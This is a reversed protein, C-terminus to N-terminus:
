ASAWTRLTPPRGGGAPLSASRWRRRCHPLLPLARHASACGGATGLALLRPAVACALRCAAARAALRVQGSLAAAQLSGGEAVWDGCVGARGAPDWICPVRPTNLPLAAGWLQTKTFAVPPLGGHPLGLAREFAALMERTM